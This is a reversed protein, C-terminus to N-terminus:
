VESSSADPIRQLRILGIGKGHEQAAVVILTKRETERSSVGEELSGWYKEDVEVTGTLRDRGPRMMARRLKHLWSWATEYCGLGLINKM